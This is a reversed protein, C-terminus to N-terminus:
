LLDLISKDGYGAITALISLAVVVIVLAGISYVLANLIIKIIKNIKM